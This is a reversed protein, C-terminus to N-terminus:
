PLDQCTEEILGEKFEHMIERFLELTMGSEEAVKIIREILWIANEKNQKRVQRLIDDM